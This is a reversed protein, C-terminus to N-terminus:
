TRKGIGVAAYWRTQVNDLAVGFSLKGFIGDGGFDKAAYLEYGFVARVDDAQAVNRTLTGLTLGHGASFDFGWPLDFKVQHATYLNTVALLSGDSVYKYEYLSLPAVNETTAIQASASVTLALVALALLNFKKM